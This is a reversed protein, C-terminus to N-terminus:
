EIRDVFVADHIVSDTLIILVITGLLILVLAAVTAFLARKVHPHEKLVLVRQDTKVVIKFISFYALYPCAVLLILWWSQRPVISLVMHAILLVAMALLCIKGRFYSYHNGGLFLSCCDSAFFDYWLPHFVMM